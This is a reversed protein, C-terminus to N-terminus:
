GLGVVQVPVAANTSAKAGLQGRGNDGWCRVTGASTRACSHHRGASVAVVGSGLGVVDVPVASGTANLVVASVGSVPVGGSGSVQLHLTGGAAVAVRDAGVGYRTDLLRSPTLSEFAGASTRAGSLYYGSVEALLQITGTSSNQLAVKGNAGVQALVLNVVTKAVVFNLNSTEPLPTGDAYVTLHGAKTPETVTVNLVVASVGAAPLGGRGSVQLHVTDGAAVAAQDAGVGTTTDLLRSPALSTLAGPPHVAVAPVAASAPSAPFAASASSEPLMVATLVWALGMAWVTLVVVLRKM